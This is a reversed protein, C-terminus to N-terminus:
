VGFGSYSGKTLLLLVFLPQSRVKLRSVCRQCEDAAACEDVLAKELAEAEMQLTALQSDISAEVAKLDAFRELGAVMEDTMSSHARSASDLGSLQNFLEMSLSDRVQFFEASAAVPETSLDAAAFTNIAEAVFRWAVKGPGM